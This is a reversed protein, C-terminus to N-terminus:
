FCKQLRCFYVRSVWQYGRVQQRWQHVISHLRPWQGALLAHQCFIKSPSALCGWAAAELCHQGIELGSALRWLGCTTQHLNHLEACLIILWIHQAQRSRTQTFFNGSGGFTILGLLLTMRKANMKKCLYYVMWKILFIFWINTLIIYISLLCAFLVFIFSYNNSRLRM